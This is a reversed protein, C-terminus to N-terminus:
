WARAACRRSRGGWRGRTTAARTSTPPTTSTSASSSRERKVIRDTTGQGVTNGYTLWSGLAIESVALGSAGLRRYNM